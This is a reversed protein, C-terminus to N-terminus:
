ALLKYGSKGSQKTEYLIADALKYLSHVNEQEAGILIGGMSVSIDLTPYELAFARKIICVFKGVMVDADEKSIERGCFVAFEDGGIRSVHDGNRNFYNELHAAFMMLARDGAPHGLTDNISKFNDLDCLLFLGQGPRREMEATVIETFGDRNLLRTLKDTTAKRTLEGYSSAVKKTLAVLVLMACLGLITMILVARTLPSLLTSQRIYTVLYWGTTDMHTISVYRDGSRVMMQDEGSASGSLLEDLQLYFSDQVDTLRMGSALTGSDALVTHTEGTVFLAGDIQSSEMIEHILQKAYDVYVDVAMVRVASDYRLRASATTCIVGLQADVYPECFTFGTSDKGAVYWPREVIVYGDPPVWGSADMYVGKDDGMYIGMPYADHAQHTTTLYDLLRADDDSYNHEINQKYIELESVIRETWEDLQSACHNSRATMTDKAMGIMLNVTLAIYSIILLFVVLLITLGIRIDLKSRIHIKSM